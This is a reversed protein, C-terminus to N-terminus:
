QHANRIPLNRLNTVEAELARLQKRLRRADRRAGFLALGAVVLGLAFGGALAFLMVWPLTTEMRGLFYDLTVPAANLATFGIGLILVLIFVLAILFIRSM